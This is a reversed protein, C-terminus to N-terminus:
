EGRLRNAVDMALREHMLAIAYVTAAHQIALLDLEDGADAGDGMVLYGLIEPGVVIPAIVWGAGIEWGPIPPVRLPRREVADTVARLQALAADHLGPDATEAM